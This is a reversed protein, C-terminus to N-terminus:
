EDDEKELRKKELYLELLEREVFVVRAAKNIAAATSKDKSHRKEWLPSGMDVYSYANLLQTINDMSPDFDRDSWEKVYDPHSRVQAQVTLRQNLLDIEKKVEPDKLEHDNIELTLGDVLTVTM